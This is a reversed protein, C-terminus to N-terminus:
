ARPPWSGTSRGAPWSWRYADLLDAVVRGPDHREQRARRGNEVLRQVLDPERHLRAVAEAFAAPDAAVLAERGDEVELGAVAAPTGVVPVGHAWAELIKMRVGSAIRL